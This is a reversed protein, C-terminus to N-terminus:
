NRGKAAIYFTVLHVLKELTNRLKTRKGGITLNIETHGM